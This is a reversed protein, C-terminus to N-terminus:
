TVHLRIWRMCAKVYTSLGRALERAAHVMKGVHGRGEFFRRLCSVYPASSSLSRPPPPYRNYAMGTRYVLLFALPMLVLSHGSQPGSAKSPGIVTYWEVGDTEAKWDLAEM